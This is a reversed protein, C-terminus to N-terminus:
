NKSYSLENLQQVGYQREVLKLQFTGSRSESAVAAEGLQGIPGLAVTAISMSDRPEIQFFTEKGSQLQVSTDWQGFNGWYDVSILHKGAPVDEWFFGWERM